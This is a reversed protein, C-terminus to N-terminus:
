LGNEFKQLSTRSQYRLSPDCEHLLMIASCNGGRNVPSTGGSRSASQTVTGTSEGALRAAGLLLCESKRRRMDEYSIGIVQEADECM